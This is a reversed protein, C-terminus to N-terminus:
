TMMAGDVTYSSLGTAAGRRRSSPEENAGQYYRQSFANPDESMPSHIREPQNAYSTDQSVPGSEVSHYQFTRPEKRTQFPNSAGGMTAKEPYHQQYPNHYTGDPINNLIHTM